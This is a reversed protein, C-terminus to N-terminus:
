QQKEKWIQRGAVLGHVQACNCSTYHSHPLYPGMIRVLSTFLSRCTLLFSYPSQLPFSAQSIIECLQKDVGPSVRSNYHTSKVMFLMGLYGPLVSNHFVCWGSRLNAVSHCVHPVFRLPMALAKFNFSVSFGYRFSVIQIVNGSGM